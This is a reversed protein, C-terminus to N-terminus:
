AEAWCLSVVRDGVVCYTFQLELLDQQFRPALEVAHARGADPDVELILDHFNGNSRDRPYQAKYFAEKLSFLISARTQDGQVFKDERPHVVRKIAAETLRNTKELDVGLLSVVSNPAAVALALGRSHSISGVYAEPWGPVGDADSLLDAREAFGVKELARRACARGAAFEMQRHPAWTAVRAREEVSFETQAREVPLLETACGVPLIRDLGTSIAEPSPEM